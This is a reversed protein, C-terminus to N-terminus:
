LSVHKSLYSKMDSLQRVTESLVGYSTLSSFALPNSYKGAQGFVPPSSHSQMTLAPPSSSRNPPPHDRESNLPQSRYNSHGGEYSSGTLSSMDCYLELLCFHCRYDCLSLVLM